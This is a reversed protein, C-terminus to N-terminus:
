PKLPVKVSRLLHFIRCSIMGSSFSSSCGIMLLLKSVSHSHLKRCTSSLKLISACPLFMWSYSHYRRGRRSKYRLRQEQANHPLIDRKVVFVVPLLVALNHFFTREFFGSILSM